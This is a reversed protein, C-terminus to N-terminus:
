AVAGETKLSAIAEQDYGAERLVADTHEGLSPAPQRWVGPTRSLRPVINHMPLDGIENNEVEVIIERERFHDDAMADAISYVPGVTVNAARMITIAEERAKSAFWAGVAADVAARHKLRASNSSFRADAVMEPRGIAQFVRRAMTETSASLAVFNGDRCRYVNRPSATNSASGAREKMNGTLAYISAEPGLVSFMAELLSLDIVQGGKQRSDRARLATVTAFAGYLGALMDALAFPPLVPERDPFGTRAAFGSM